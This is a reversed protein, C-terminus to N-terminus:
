PPRDPIPGVSSARVSSVSPGSRRPRNPSTRANPESAKTTEVTATPNRRSASPARESNQAYRGKRTAVARTVAVIGRRPVAVRDALMRRPAPSNRAVFPM